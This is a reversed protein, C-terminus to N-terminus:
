SARLGLSPELQAVRRGGAAAAAVAALVTVVLAVAIHWPLLRCISEGGGISEALLGNLMGQVILFAVCALLWAAGATLAAQLIPFWVIDRTRFGTLRLMSFERRKRDINAWV